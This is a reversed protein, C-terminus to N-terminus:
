GGELWVEPNVVRVGLVARYREACRIFRDDTTLLVAASGSEACATHLADLGRFGYGRLQVARISVQPTVIIDVTALALTRAIAERRRIDGIGSTELRIAESTILQHQGDRIREFITELALAERRVREQAQDDEGRQLCCTDPYIRM